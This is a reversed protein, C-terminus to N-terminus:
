PSWLAYPGQVHGIIDTELRSKISGPVSIFANADCLPSVESSKCSCASSSNCLKSGSQVHIISFFFCQVFYVSSNLVFLLNQEILIFGLPYLKFEGEQLSMSELALFQLADSVM